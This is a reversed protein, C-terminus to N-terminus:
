YTDYISKFWFQSSSCLYTDFTKRQEPKSTHTHTHTDWHRQCILIGILICGNSSGKGCLSLSLSSISFLLPCHVSHFSISFWFLFVVAVVLLFRVLFFRSTLLLLASKGKGRSETTDSLRRCSSRQARAAHTRSRAGTAAGGGGADSGARGEAIERTHGSKHARSPLVSLRAKSQRAIGASARARVSVGAGLGSLFSLFAGRRGREAVDRRLRARAVFVCRPRASRQAFTGRGSLGARRAGSRATLALRPTLWPSLRRRGGQAPHGDRRLVALRGPKKPAAGIETGGGPRRLSAHAATRAEARGRQQPADCPYARHSAAASRRPAATSNHVSACFLARASTHGLAAVARTTTRVKQLKKKIKTITITRPRAHKHAAACVPPTSSCLCLRPAARPAQLPMLSSLRSSPLLQTEPTLPANPM